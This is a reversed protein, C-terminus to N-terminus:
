LETDNALSASKSWVLDLVFDNGSQFINIVVSKALNQVVQLVGEDILISKGILKVSNWSYLGV